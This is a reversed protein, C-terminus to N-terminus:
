EGDSGEDENCEDDRQSGTCTVQQMQVGTCKIRSLDKKLIKPACVYVQHEPTLCGGEPVLHCVMKLMRVCLHDVLSTSLFAVSNFCKKCGEWKRWTASRTTPDTATSRRHDFQGVLWDSLLLVARSDNSLFREARIRDLQPDIM